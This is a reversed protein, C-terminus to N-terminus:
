SNFLLSTDLHGELNEDLILFHHYKKLPSRKFTKINQHNKDEVSGYVNRAEM